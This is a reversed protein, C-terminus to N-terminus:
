PFFSCSVDNDREMECYLKPNFSLPFSFVLQVDIVESLLLERGNAVFISM